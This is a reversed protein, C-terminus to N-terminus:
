IIANRQEGRAEEEGVVSISCCGAEYRLSLLTHNLKLMILFLFLWVKTSLADHVRTRYREEGRRGSVSRDRIGFVFAVGCRLM